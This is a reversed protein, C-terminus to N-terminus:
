ASIREQTAIHREYAATRIARQKINTAVKDAYAHQRPYSESLAVAANEFNKMLQSFHENM